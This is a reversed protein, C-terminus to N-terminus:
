YDELRIRYNVSNVKVNLWKDNTGGGVDTILPTSNPFNIYNSNINLKDSNLTLTKGGARGNTGTTLKIDQDATLNIGDGGALIHSYINVSGSADVNINNSVDVNLDQHANLNINEDATLTIYGEESKILLNSDTEIEIEEDSSDYSIKIDVDDEEEDDSLNFNFKFKEGLISVERTESNGLTINREEIEEYQPINRRFQVTPYKLQYSNSRSDERRGYLPAVPHVHPAVPDVPDVVPAPAVIPDSM